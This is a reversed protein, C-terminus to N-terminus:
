TFACPCGNNFFFYHTRPYKKTHFISIFYQWPLLLAIAAVAALVTNTTPLAVAALANVTAALLM